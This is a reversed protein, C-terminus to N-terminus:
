KKKGLSVHLWSQPSALSLVRIQWLEWPVCAGTFAWQMSGQLLIVDWVMIETEEKETDALNPIKICIM